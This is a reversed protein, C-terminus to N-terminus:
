LSNISLEAPAESLPTGDATCVGGAECPQAPLLAFRIPQTGHPALTITYSHAPEGAVTRPGVATVTAGEVSLSPSDAAFDAVPHSFTVVVQPRDAAGRHFRASADGALAATVARPQRALAWGPMATVLSDEFYGVQWHLSLQEQGTVPNVQTATAVENVPRSPGDPRREPPLDSGWSILWDGGELPEVHGRIWGIRDQTDGLSRERVYVAEHNDFDLQYELARSYTRDPRLPNEGTWPNRSCNAGNDYLLLRGEPTISAAHQGCFQGQPDGVMALPAPDPPPSTWGPEDQNTPGVRWNVEGTAPDIGLVQNCGRFSAVIEGGHVGVSNVHAWRGDAPPFWHHTCDELPLHDYSNWTLLAEGEPTVIQIASDVAQTQAGHPEGDADPFTLRSFDRVAEEFAMLLYNGSPLVRFDHTGTHTLPAVTTVEDVAQLDEDLVVHRGQSNAPSKDWRSYSYRYEGDGGDRYFRFHVRDEGPVRDIRHRPVGNRDLIMMDAGVSALLLEDTAGASAEATFPHLDEDLCYVVYRTEGGGGNSVSVVVESRGDVPVSATVPRGAGPNPYSVGDVALRSSADAAAFTLRMTDPDGCGVSYHLTRAEFGPRMRRWDAWADDPSDGGSSGRASSGRAIPDRTSVSLSSLVDAVVVHHLAAVAAKADGHRDGYRATVRLHEGADAATPVYSAATAGEIVAWANRGASREWSWSVAGAVTDPDTLTATLSEGVRPRSGSLGVAGPEDTDTVAVAVARSAVAGRVEAVVTVEYVNDGGADRPDEYDAAAPFRGPGSPAIRLRLAGPPSDITFHAGDPGGLSWAVGAGHAESLVGYTAVRGYDNEAISVSSPGSLVLPQAPQQAPVTGNCGGPVIHTDTDFLCRYANLLAEQAAILRDRLDQEGRTPTGEFRAPQAPQQAPEAGDCGGPVIHTDTDFLCRYANLLAEQSSVLEERLEIDAATPQEPQSGAVAPAAALVLLVALLAKAVM